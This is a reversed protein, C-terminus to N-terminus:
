TCMRTLYVYASYTLNVFIYCLCIGEFAHCTSVSAFVIYFFVKSCTSVLKHSQIVGDEPSPLQYLTCHSAAFHQLNPMQWIVQAPLDTLPNHSLIIDSLSDSYPAVWTVNLSQLGKYSWGAVLNQCM